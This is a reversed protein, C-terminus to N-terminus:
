NELWAAIVVGMSAACSLIQHATSIATACRQACVKHTHTLILVNM